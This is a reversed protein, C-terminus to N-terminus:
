ETKNSKKLENADLSLLKGAELAKTKNYRKVSKLTMAEYRFSWHCAHSNSYSIVMVIPPSSNLPPKSDSLQLLGVVFQGGGLLIGLTGVAGVATIANCGSRFYEIYKKDM